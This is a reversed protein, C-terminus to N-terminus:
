EESPAQVLGENKEYFKYYPLNEGFSGDTRGDIAIQVRDAECAALLSNVVSYVSVEDSVGSLHELFGSGLNIYCIRDATTVSLTTTGEPITPYNGKVMPGKALQELVVRERPLNRRYYVKRQEEVLKEGSKDTFYLTFVDYSYSDMDEGSFDVFTNANMDGISNNRSDQLPNGNVTFRVSQIGPVQLFTRVLGARVLIEKARSMKNYQGNFDIVLVAGDIEHSDISVEQPLLNISEQGGSKDGYRQLLYPIMFDATEAEPSYDEKLLETEEADLYYYSYGRVAETRTEEVEIECGSLSICFLCASLLICLFKKM